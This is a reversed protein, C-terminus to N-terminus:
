KGKTQTNCNNSIVQQLQLMQSVFNERTLDYYNSYVQKNHKTINIRVEVNRDFQFISGENIYDFSVMCPTNTTLDNIFTKASRKIYIRQGDNSFNYAPTDLVAGHTLSLPVICLIMLLLKKM